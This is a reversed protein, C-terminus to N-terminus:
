KVRLDVFKGTKTLEVEVEYSVAGQTCKLAVVYNGTATTKIPAM